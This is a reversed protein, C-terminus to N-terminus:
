DSRYREHIRRFIKLLNGSRIDSIDIGYRNNIRKDYDEGPLFDYLSAQDSLVCNYFNTELINGFFDVAIIEYVELDSRDTPKRRLKRGPRPLPKSSMRYNNFKCVLNAEAEEPTNGFASMGDWGPIECSWQLLHDLEAPFDSVLTEEAPIHARHNQLRVPYDSLVWEAKFFSLVFKIISEM